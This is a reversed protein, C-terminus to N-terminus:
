GLMRRLVTQSLSLGTWSVVLLFSIIKLTKHDTVVFQTVNGQFWLLEM